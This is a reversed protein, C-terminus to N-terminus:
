EFGMENENNKTSKEISGLWILSDQYFMAAMAEPLMTSQHITLLIKIKM